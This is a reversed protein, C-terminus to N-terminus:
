KDGDLFQPRRACFEEIALYVADRYSLKVVSIANANDVVTYLKAKLNKKIPINLNTYSDDEKWKPPRGSSVKPVQGTRKWRDYHKQLIGYQKREGNPFERFLHAIPKLKTIKNIGELGLGIAGKATGEPIDEMKCIEFFNYYKTKDLGM